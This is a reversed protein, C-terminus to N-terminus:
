KSLTKICKACIKKRVGEVTKTQLNARFKRRTKRESHSVKNGTQSGRDCIECVRSM